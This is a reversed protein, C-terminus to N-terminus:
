RLRLCTYTRRAPSFITSGSFDSAATPFSWYARPKLAITRQLLRRTERRRAAAAEGREIAAAEVNDESGAAMMEAAKNENIKECM